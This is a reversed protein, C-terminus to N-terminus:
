SPKKLQDILAQLMRVYQEDASQFAKTYEDRSLRQKGWDGDFRFSQPGVDATDFPVNNNARRFMLGNAGLDSIFVRTAPEAAGNLDSYLDPYMRRELLIQARVPSAFRGHVVLLQTGPVHLAGIFADGDAAAVNQLKQEDLLKVLESVLPASKSDQAQAVVPLLVLAVVFFVKYM